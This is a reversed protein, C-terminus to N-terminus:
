KKLARRHPGTERCHLQNLCGWKGCKKKWFLKLVTKKKLKQVNDLKGSSSAHYTVVDPDNADVQPLVTHCVSLLTLLQRIFPADNSTRLNEKLASASDVPYINGAVSMQHFQMVNQTLTGTKDCFIYKVQGLEDNLNSAATSAPTDNEANYM